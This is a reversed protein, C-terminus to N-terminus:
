NDEDAVVEIKNVLGRIETGVQSYWDVHKLELERTIGEVFKEIYEYYSNTRQKMQFKYLNTESLEDVQYLVEQLLLCIRLTTNVDGM